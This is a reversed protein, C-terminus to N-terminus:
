QFKVLCLSVSDLQDASESAKMGLVECLKDLDPFSASSNLIEKDPVHESSTTNCLIIIDKSQITFTSLHIDDTTKVKGRGLSNSLINPLRYTVGGENIYTCDDVTLQEIRGMRLLYARCMGVSAIHLHSNLWCATVASLAVQEREAIADIKQFASLLPHVPTTATLNDEENGIFSGFTTL